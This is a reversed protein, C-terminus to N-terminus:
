GRGTRGGGVRAGRARRVPRRRPRRRLGPRRGRPRGRRKRRRALRRARRGLASIARRDGAAFFSSTRRCFGPRTASSPRAPAGTRAAVRRAADGGDRAPVRPAAGVFARRRRRTSRGPSFTSCGCARPRREPEIAAYLRAAARLLVSEETLPARSPRRGCSCSRRRRARRRRRAGLRRAPHGSRRRRARDRGGVAPRADRAARPLRAIGGRGRTWADEAGASARRRRCSSRSRRSRPLRGRRRLRRADRARDPARGRPRDARTDSGARTSCCRPSASRPRAGRHASRWAVKRGRGRRPRAVYVRLPEDRPFRRGGARSARLARDLSPSLEADLAGALAPDDVEDFLVAHGGPLAERRASTAIPARPDVRAAGAARRRSGARAPRRAARSCRRPRSGLARARGGPALRRRDHTMEQPYGEPRPADIPTRLRAARGNRLVARAGRRGPTPPRPEEIRVFVVTINDM